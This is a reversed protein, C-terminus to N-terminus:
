SVVGQSETGEQWGVEEGTTFKWYRKRIVDVLKESLECGYCTRGTQAAALLTTGSGLFPDCMIDGKDTTMLIARTPLKIPFCAINDKTINTNETGIEWFNTIYRGVKKNFYGRGGNDTIIYYDLDAVIDDDAMLIIPEFARTLQDGTRIDLARKKSWCIMDLFKMGTKTIIEHFISIFETPSNKNYSLNWFLYGKLRKRWLELVALNFMIYEDSGLDDDYEKYRRGGKGMNYPPSTFLTRATDGGFLRDILGEDRSDGCAVRHKGLNYVEGKKSSTKGEDIEIEDVETADNEDEIEAIDLGWARLEKADWENTLIDWDNEGFAVNDKITYARLKEVPTDVPLIKTPLEKIGLEKAARLRMNGCIVVLEGHNDYAIVERLDLMEPDDKLSQKLKKYREDRIIRPNKTLGSIQGTNTKLQSVAILKKEM